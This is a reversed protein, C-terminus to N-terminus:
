APTQSKAKSGGRKRGVTTGKVILRNRNNHEVNDEEMPLNLSSSTTAQTSNFRTSYLSVYIWIQKQYFPMFKKVAQIYRTYVSKGKTALPDSPSNFTSFNQFLLNMDDLFKSVNTYSKFNIREGILQLWIPHKIVSHYDTESQPVQNVFLEVQSNDEFCALFVKACLLQERNGFEQTQVTLPECEVCVSCRWDDPLDEMAGRIRPVHCHSHFVRPCSECCGLSGTTEDCGQSCVYCYDDWFDDSTANRSEETKNNGVNESNKGESKKNSSCSAEENNSPLPKLTSIKGTKSNISIKENRKEQTAVEEANQEEPSSFVRLDLSNPTDSKRSTKLKGLKQETNEEKNDFDEGGGGEGNEETTTTILDAPPSINVPRKEENNNLNLIKNDIEKALRKQKQQEGDDPNISAPKRKTGSNTNIPAFTSPSETSNNGAFSVTSDAAVSQPKNQRLAKLLHPSSNNNQQQQQLQQLASDQQQLLNLNENIKEIKESNIIIDNAIPVTILRNISAELEQCSSNNKNQEGGGEAEEEDDLLDVIEPIASSTSQKHSIHAPLNEFNRSSIQQPMTSASTMEVLHELPTVGSNQYQHQPHNDTASPVCTLNKGIVSDVFQQAANLRPNPIRSIIPPLPRDEQGVCNNGLQQNHPSDLVHVIHQQPQQFPPSMVQPHYQQSLMLQQQQLHLRQATMYQQHMQQQQQIIHPPPPPQQQNHHQQNFMPQQSNQCINQQQLQHPISGAHNQPIQQMRFQPPPPPQRLPLCPQQQISRQQQQHHPQQQLQQQGMHQQQQQQQLVMNQRMIQMQDPPGHMVPTLPTNPLSIPPSGVVPLPCNLPLLQPPRQPHHQPHQQQQPQQQPHQQPHQQVFRSGSVNLPQQLLQPIIPTPSSVSIHHIESHHLNPGGINHQQQPIPHHISPPNQQINPPPSSLIMISASPTSIRQPQQQLPQQQINNNNSGSFNVAHQQQQSTSANSHNSTSRIIPPVNQTPPIPRKHQQQITPTDISNNSTNSNSNSQTFSNSISFM